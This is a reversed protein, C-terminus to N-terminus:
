QKSTSALQGIISNLWDVLVQSKEHIGFQSNLLHSISYATNMDIEGIQIESPWRKKMGILKGVIRNSKNLIEQLKHISLNWQIEASKRQADAQNKLLSFCPSDQAKTAKQVGKKKKNAADKGGADAGSTDKAQNSQAPPIQDELDSAELQIAENLDFGIESFEASAISIDNVSAAIIFPTEARGNSASSVAANNINGETNSTSATVAPSSSLKLNPKKGANTNADVTLGLFFFIQGKSSSTAASSFGTLPSSKKRSISSVSSSVSTSFTSSSSFNSLGPRTTSRISRSVSSSAAVTTAGNTGNTADSAFTDATKLLSSDIGYWQGLVTGPEISAVIAEKNNTRFSSLKDEFCKFFFFSREELLGTDFLPLALSCVHAYYANALERMSMDKNDNMLLSSCNMPPTSGSQAIMKQIIRKADHVSSAIALAVKTNAIKKEDPLSQPVMSSQLQSEGLTSNASPASSLSSNNGITGSSENQSSNSNSTLGVLLVNNLACERSRPHTICDPSSAFMALTQDALKDVQETSYSMQFTSFDQNWTLIALPSNKIFNKTQISLLSSNLLFLLGHSVYPCKSNMLDGADNLLSVPDKPGNFTANVLAELHSLRIMLFTNRLFYSREENLALQEVFFKKTDDNVKEALNLVFSKTDISNLQGENQGQISNILHPDYCFLTLLQAVSLIYEIHFSTIPKLRSIQYLLRAASELDANRIMILAKYYVSAFEDSTSFDNLNYSAKYIITKAHTIIGNILLLPQDNGFQEIENKESSLSKLVEQAVNIASEWRWQKMYIHAKAVQLEIKVSSPINKLEKGALDNILNEGIRLISTYFDSAQSSSGAKNLSDQDVSGSKTKAHHQPKRHKGRSSTQNPDKSADQSAQTTVGLPDSVDSAVICFKAICIVYQIMLANGYDSGVQASVSALKNICDQNVQSFPQENSNFQIRKSNQTYLMNESTKRAEGYHTIFDNMVNMAGKMLGFECCAVFTMLRARGLFRKNRTIFRFFHRILSLPKFMEFYMECSYLSSLLHNFAVTVYEPDTPELLPQNPDNSTFIDIGSVIEPPEFEIFDIEKKPNNSSSTFISALSFAALRSLMMASSKESYMAIFMSIVAISLCGSWSHKQYFSEETEKELIQLVKEHAKVVRFHGELAECLKTIAQKTKGRQFLVFALKTLLSISMSLKQKHQLGIAITAVNNVLNETDVNVPDDPFLSMIGQNAKQLLINAMSYLKNSSDSNNTSEVTKNAKEFPENSQILWQLDSTDIKMESAKQLLNKVIESKNDFLLIIFCIKLVKILWSISSSPANEILVSSLTAISTSNDTFISNGPGILSLFTELMRLSDVIIQDQKSRNAFVISRRFSNFILSYQDPNVQHDDETKKSTPTKNKTQKSHKRSTANRDSQQIVLEEQKENEMICLGSLYCIAARSKNIEFFKSINKSRNRYKHWVSQIKMAAHNEAENEEPPKSNDGQQSGKDKGKTQTQKKPKTQKVNRANKSKSPQKEETEHLQSKFYELCQSSWNTGQAYLGINHAASIVYIAAQNFLPDTKFKSFIDDFCREPSSRFCDAAALLLTSDSTSAELLQNKSAFLLFFTRFQDAPLSQVANIIFQSLQKEQYLSVFLSDVAFSARSLIVQHLEDNVTEKNKMLASIIYLLPHVVWKSHYINVLNPQITALMENCISLSLEQNNLIQSITLAIKLFSTAHLPKSSFLRGAMILSTAFSRLIPAPLPFTEPKIVFRHFPNCNNYFKHDDSVKQITTLKKMLFTLAVDFTENDKLEYATSALYAWILENSLSHCTTISFSPQLNDILEDHTDYGGFAFTYLTNPKLNTVLFPETQDHKEGTGKLATNSTTLGMSGNVNEKGFLSITKANPISTPCLLSIQNRNSFIVPSNIPLQLKEGQNLFERAKMLLKNANKPNFFSMQIYILAKAGYNDKYQESLLNETPISRKPPQFPKNLLSDFKQKQSADLTGFMKEEHIKDAKTKEILETYDVKAKQIDDELGYNLRARFFITFLDVHLCELWKEFQIYGQDLPKHPFSTPASIVKQSKRISFYDRYTELVNLASEAAKYANEYEKISDLHWAYHLAALSCEIPCPSPSNILIHLVGKLAMPDEIKGASFRNFIKLAYENYFQFDVSIEEKSLQSILDSAEVWNESSLKLAIQVIKDEPLSSNLSDLSDLPGSRMLCYILRHLLLPSIDCEPLMWNQIVPGYKTVYEQKPMPSNFLNIIMHVTHLSPLSVPHNAPEDKVPRAKSKKQKRSSSIKDVVVEESSTFHANILEISNFATSYLDELVVQRNNCTTITESLGNINSEELEKMNMIESKFTQIFLEADKEHSEKLNAYVACVTLFLQLRFPVFRSTCFMLNSSILQNITLVFELIQDSYGSFIIREIYPIISIVINYVIYYNPQDPNIQTILNVILTLQQSIRDYTDIFLLQPDFNFIVKITSLIQQFQQQYNEIENM